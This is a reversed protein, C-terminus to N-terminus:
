YIHRWGLRHHHSRTLVNIWLALDVMWVEHTPCLKPIHTVVMSQFRQNSKFQVISIIEMKSILYGRNRLLGGLCIQWLVEPRIEVAVFHGEEDEVPRLVEELVVVEELCLDHVIQIVLLSQRAEPGEVAEWATLCGVIVIVVLRPSALCRAEM